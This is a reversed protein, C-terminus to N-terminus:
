DSTDVTFCSRSINDGFELKMTLCEAENPCYIRVGEAVFFIKVMQPEASISKMSTVTQSSSNADLYHCPWCLALRCAM